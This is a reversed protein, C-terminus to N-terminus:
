RSRRKSPFTEEEEARDDGGVGTRVNAYTGGGIQNSDSLPQRVTARTGDM